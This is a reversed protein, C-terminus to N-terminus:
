PLGFRALFVACKRMGTAVQAEVTHEAIGLRAAIEKQPLGYIKRLTLVQRCRDPLSQIAKTLIELEQNKAAQDAATPADEYVPLDAIEAVPDFTVVQRRRLEDLALNRATTFLLAKPSQVPGTEHAQWVRALSEQVMNDPDTLAPFKGRLWARLEAAHPQVEAAFWGPSDPNEPPM